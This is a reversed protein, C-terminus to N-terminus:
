LKFIFHSGCAQAKFAQGGVSTVVKPPPPFVLLNSQWLDSLTPRVSKDRARGQAGRQRAAVMIPANQEALSGGSHCGSAESVMLGIVGNEKLNNRSHTERRRSSFLSEWLGGHHCWTPHSAILCKIEQLEPSQRLNCISQKTYSSTKRGGALQWTVM